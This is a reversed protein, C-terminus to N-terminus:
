NEMGAGVELFSSMSTQLQHIQDRIDDQDDDQDDDGVAWIQGKPKIKGRCFRAFHGMQQCKYCKMKSMDKKGSNGGSNSPKNFRRMDMNVRCDAMKHGYTQFRRCKGQFRGTKGDVVRGTENVVRRTYNQHQKGFSEIQDIEMDEVADHGREERNEKYRISVAALGDMSTVEGYHNLYAERENAVSQIAIHRLWGRSNHNNIPDKEM